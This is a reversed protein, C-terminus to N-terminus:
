FLHAVPASLLRNFQVTKLKNKMVMQVCWICSSLLHSRKGYSDKYSLPYLIRGAILRGLTRTGNAVCKREMTFWITSKEMYLM